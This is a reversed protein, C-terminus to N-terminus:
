ASDQVYHAPSTKDSVGFLLGLLVYQETPTYNQREGPSLDINLQVAKM